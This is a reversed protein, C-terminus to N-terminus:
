CRFIVFDNNELIYTLLLFLAREDEVAADATGLVHNVICM